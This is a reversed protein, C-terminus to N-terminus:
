DHGAGVDPKGAGAQQQRRKRRGILIWPLYLITLILFILIAEPFMYGPNGFWVEFAQLPTDKPVYCIFMYNTDFAIDGIAAICILFLLLLLCRPLRRWDPRFGDGWVILVPVMVLITHMVASQLYQFSLLPYYWGPTILASLAAPMSLAYSFEKFLTDKKAYVAILEIFISMSCLHLPLTDRFSYHGTILKWIWTSVESALVFLVLARKVRERAAPGIRRYLFLVALILLIATTAWAIHVPSFNPTDFESPIDSGDAWFYQLM